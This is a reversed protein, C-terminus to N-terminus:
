TYKNLENDYYLCFGKGEETCQFQWCFTTYHDAGFIDKYEIRGYCFVGPRHDEEMRRIDNWELPQAIAPFTRQKGSGIVYGGEPLSDTTAKKIATPPQGNKYWVDCKLKTLIAPTKGQNIVTYKCCWVGLGNTLEMTSYESIEVFLYPRESDQSSKVSKETAKANAEAIRLSEQMEGAQRASADKADSALNKTAKWLRATYIALGLTVFVLAATLYVLWWEPSTHNNHKEDTKNAEPHNTVPSQVKVTSPMTETSIQHETKTNNKNHESNSEHKEVAKLPTPPPPQSEACVGVGCFLLLMAIVLAIRM